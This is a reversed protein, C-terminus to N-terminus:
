SGGHGPLVRGKITRGSFFSIKQTDKRKNMKKIKNSGGKVYQVQRVTIATLKTKLKSIM